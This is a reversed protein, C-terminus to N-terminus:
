RRDFLRCAHESPDHTLGGNPASERMRPATVRGYHAGLYTADVVSVAGRHASVVTRGPSRAAAMPSSFALGAPSSCTCPLPAKVRHSSSFTRTRRSSKAHRGRAGRGPCAPTGRYRNQCLEQGPRSALRSSPRLSGPRGAPRAGATHLRSFCRVDVPPTLQREAETIRHSREAVSDFCALPRLASSRAPREGV